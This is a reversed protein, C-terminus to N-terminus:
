RHSRGQSSAIRPSGDADRVARRVSGALRELDPSIAAALALLRLEEKHGSARLVRTIRGDPSIQIDLSM